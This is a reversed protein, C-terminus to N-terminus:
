LRRHKRRFRVLFQVIYPRLFFRRKWVECYALGFLIGGLHASHAVQSHIQAVSGFLSWIFVLQLLQSAQLRIPIVGALLIGLVHTPYMRAFVALLAVTVGSLGLCSGQGSRDLALFAVSSVSAAGVILPWLPWRSQSFLMRQVVPGLSLLAAINVALHYFGIHSVSSLFLTLLRGSQLNLRNVVFHKQLIPRVAPVRWLMFVALSAWSVISVSPSSEHLTSAYRQFRELLSMPKNTYTFTQTEIYFGGNNPESPDPVDGLLMPRKGYQRPSPSYHPNAEFPSGEGGFTLSGGQVRLAASTSRFRASTLSFTFFFCLTCYRLWSQLQLM